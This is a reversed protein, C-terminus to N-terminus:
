QAQDVSLAGSFNLSNHKLFQGKWLATLHRAGDVDVEGPSTQGTLAVTSLMTPAVLQSSDFSRVFALGTILTGEMTCGNPFVHVVFPEAGVVGRGVLVLHQGCVFGDYAFLKATHAAQPVSVIAHLHGPTLAQTFDFIRYRWVPEGNIGHSRLYGHYKLRFPQVQRDDRTLSNDHSETITQLLQNLQSPEFYRAMLLSVSAGMVSAGLTVFLTVLFQKGTPGFLTGIVILLVGSSALSFLFILSEPKISRKM